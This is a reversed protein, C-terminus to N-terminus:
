AIPEVYDMEELMIALNHFSYGSDNSCVLRDANLLSLGLTSYFDAQKGLSRYFVGIICVPERPDSWIGINGRAQKHKNSKLERILNERNSRQETQTLM